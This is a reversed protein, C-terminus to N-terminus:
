GTLHKYTNVIIVLQRAWKQVFKWWTQVSHFYMFGELLLFISYTPHVLEGKLHYWACVMIGRYKVNLSEKFKRFNSFITIGSPGCLPSKLGWHANLTTTCGLLSSHYEAHNYKWRYLICESSELLSGTFRHMHDHRTSVECGETWDVNTYQADLHSINHLDMPSFHHKEDIIKLPNHKWLSRRYSFVECWIVATCSFCIVSYASNKM